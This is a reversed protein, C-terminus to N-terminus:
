AQKGPSQPNNLIYRVTYKYLEGQRIAAQHQMNAAHHRLVSEANTQTIAQWRNPAYANGSSTMHRCQDPDINGWTIAQQRAAWTM